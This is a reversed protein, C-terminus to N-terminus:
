GFSSHPFFFFRQMNKLLYFELTLLPITIQALQGFAFNADVRQEQVCAGEEVKQKEWRDSAAEFCFEKQARLVESGKATATLM